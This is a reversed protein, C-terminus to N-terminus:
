KHSNYLCVDELANEPINVLDFDFLEIYNKYLSFPQEPTFRRFEEMISCLDWGQIKRLCGIITCLHLTSSSSILMPQNDRDLIYQLSLKVLEDLQTRWQLSSRQSYIGIRTYKTGRSKLFDAIRQLPNDENIFLVTKFNYLSLFNFNTPSITACRSISQTVLGFADPPELFQSQSSTDLDDHTVVLRKM